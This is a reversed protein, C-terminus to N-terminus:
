TFKGTLVWWIRDVFTMTDIHAVTANIADLRAQIEDAERRIANVEDRIEEAERRVNGMEVELEKRHDSLLRKIRIETNEIKEVTEQNSLLVKEGVTAIHRRSIREGTGM